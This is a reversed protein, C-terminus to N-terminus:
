PAPWMDMWTVNLSATVTVPVGLEREVGAARRGVGGAAATARQGEVVGDAGAVCWRRCEVVAAVDASVRLPPVILSAPPLSAVRVSGASPEPWERPSLLFMMM